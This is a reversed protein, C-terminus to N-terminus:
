TDCDEAITRCTQREGGEKVKVEEKGGEEIMGDNDGSRRMPGMACVCRNWREFVANARESFCLPQVSTVGVGRHQLAMEVGLAGNIDGRFPRSHGSGWVLEEVSGSGVSESSSEADPSVSGVEAM